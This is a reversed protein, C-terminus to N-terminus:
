ACACASAQVGLCRIGEGELAVSSEHVVAERRGM